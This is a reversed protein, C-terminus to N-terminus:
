PQFLARLIGLGLEVGGLGIVVDRLAVDGCSQFLELSPSKVVERHLRHQHRVM